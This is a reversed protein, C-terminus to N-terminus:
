EVANAIPEVPRAHLRELRQVTHGTKMHLYDSVSLRSPRLSEAASGIGVFPEREKKLTKRIAASTAAM